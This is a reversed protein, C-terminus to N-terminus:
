EAELPNHQEHLGRYCVGPMLGVVVAVTEPEAELVEGATGPCAGELVAPIGRLIDQDDAQQGATPGASITNSAAAAAARAERRVPQHKPAVSAAGALSEAQEGEALPNSPLSGVGATLSRATTSGSAPTASFLDIDQRGKWTHQPLLLPQSCTISWCNFCLRM